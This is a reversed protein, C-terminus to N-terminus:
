RSQLWLDSFAGHESGARVTRADFLRARRRPSVDAVGSPATKHWSAAQRPRRGRLRRGYSLEAARDGRAIQIRQALDRRRDFTADGGARSLCLPIQWVLNSERHPPADIADPHFGAESFRTKPSFIFKHRRHRQGNCPTGLM